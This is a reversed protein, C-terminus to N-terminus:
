APMDFRALAAALEPPESMFGTLQEADDLAALQAAAPPRPLTTRCGAELLIGHYLQEGVAVPLWLCIYELTFGCERAM